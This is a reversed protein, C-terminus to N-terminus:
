EEGYFDYNDLVLADIGNAALLKPLGEVASRSSECDRQCRIAPAEERELRGMTGLIEANSPGSVGERWFPHVASQRCTALPEIFPLSIM